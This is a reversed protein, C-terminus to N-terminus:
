RNSYSHLGSLEESLNWLKTALEKDYSIESSKIQRCNVFYGGTVDSVEDSSALYIPTQAGKEVPLMTLKKLNWGLRYIFSAHKGVINTKVMGPHLANVTIQKSGLRGTLEYTFLVNALKSRCYAKWGNYRKELNIDEFNITGKFHANSSVNIIRAPASEKLLQLLLNTLLFHSLHNVAFQMEIGDASYKRSSCFVAANNILVDLKSYKRQFEDALKKTGSLSSLNTLIFEVNENESKQKIEEQANEGRKADSGVIAITAGLNALGIATAKGIGATGGTILCVKDIM